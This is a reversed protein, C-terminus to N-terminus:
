IKEIVVLCTSDPLDVKNRNEDFFQIKQSLAITYGEQLFHQLEIIKAREGLVKAVFERIASPTFYGFQENVEHVYSKEGWTYTYLFEMADNIPMIVENQGIVEYQIERGKFDEAYRKLFEMGEESLFKIIRRQDAPETMIGDRIIVRGGTSLVDFVSKFAAALTDHNFKKGEFEIYSFLEHLISCFIVTDVSGEKIYEKLNLADGYLVDWKRYELQKKKRLAELVNQAIDVGMVKKDPFNEEILDMLAGGGPGIDVVNNGKIFDLIIKKYDITSNMTQLYTEEEYFRDYKDKRLGFL